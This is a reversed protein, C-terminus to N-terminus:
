AAGIGAVRLFTVPGRHFSRQKSLRILQPGGDFGHSWLLPDPGLDDVVMSVHDGTSPGYVVLAGIRAKSPETYHRLHHLLTGTYGAYRYGLGNPDELGAWKYLCTVGQSCDMMLHRGSALTKRMQPETMRFTAADLAGRVDHRPYNVQPEHDLLLKALDRLQLRQLRNM